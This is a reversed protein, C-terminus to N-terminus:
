KIVNRVNRNYNMFIKKIENKHLNVIVKGRM